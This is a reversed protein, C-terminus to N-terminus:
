EVFGKGALTAALDGKEATVIRAFQVRQPNVDRQALLMLSGFYHISGIILCSVLIVLLSEMQDTILFCAPTIIFVGDM